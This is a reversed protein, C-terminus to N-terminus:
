KGCANGQKLRIDEIVQENLAHLDPQNDFRREFEM